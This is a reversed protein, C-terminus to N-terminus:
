QNEIGPWVARGSTVIKEQVVDFVAYWGMDDGGDKELCRLQVREASEWRVSVIELNTEAGWESLTRSMGYGKSGIAFDMDEVMLDAWHTGDESYFRARTVSNELQRETMKRVTENLLEWDSFWSGLLIASRGAYVTRGDMQEDDLTARDSLYITEGDTVLFSYRREEIEKKEAYRDRTADRRFLFHENEYIIDYIVSDGEITRCVMRLMADADLSVQELFTSVREESGGVITGGADVVLDCDMGSIDKGLEELPAYGYPADSTIDSQGITFEACYRKEGIEKVIRYQGDTIEYDYPFFSFSNSWSEGPMVMYLISNWGTNEALPLSRWRGDKLVEITYPAGFELVADTNNDVYYNFATVSKDYVSHEVRLVVEGSTDFEDEAYPSDELYETCSSLMGTLVLLALLLATWRRM